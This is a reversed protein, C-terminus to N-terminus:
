LSVTQDVTRITGSDDKWTLRVESSPARQPFFNYTVKQGSLLHKVPGDTIDLVAAATAEPDPDGEENLFVTEVDHADEEGQNELRFRYNTTYGINGKSDM